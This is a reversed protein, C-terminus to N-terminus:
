IMQIPANPETFYLWASAVNRQLIQSIARAYLDIQPQYRARKEDVRDAPIRSTKYDIIVLGQPTEILCDIVGQITIHDDSHTLQSQPVVAPLDIPRVLHTFPQERHVDAAHQLM